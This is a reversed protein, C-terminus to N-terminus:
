VIIINFNQKKLCIIVILMCNRLYKLQDKGRFVRGIEASHGFETVVGLATYEHKSIAEGGLDIVEQYIFPRSNLEFGHDTNLNKLRSYIVGLDAPWMHKAADVRFGAVGLDILHNLADVIKGRVYETGQNLDKLGNLECNRM